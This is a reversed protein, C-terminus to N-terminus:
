RHALYRRSWIWTVGLLLSGLVLYLTAPTATQPWGFIAEYQMGHPLNTKLAHTHLAQGDPRVPTVDVAVLSTYRSVLHHKLALDLISQRLLAKDNDQTQQDMLRAITQRAWYVAIGNRPKADVLSQKTEWHTGAQKGSITISSPLNKTRFAVTLPEGTYLDPLPNPVVDDFISDGSQITIDTFAPHELKLFLRHMKDQVQTTAGIHTFTGKGFQAAKRMFHGNPASGIGVTFLRNQGIDRQLLIFLADENGVLGDTIFIIQRLSHHEEQNPTRALAQLLAPQMETGGEAKLDDVYRLAQRISLASAQQSTAYFAQTISNFQILNFSDQPTLRTLALKLAAKAQTLSSGAMSGSTDIVFVVERPITKQTPSPTVPPMLQMFLFTEGEHQETFVSAQPNEHSLPTWLLEFDRDAYTSSDQLSVQYSNTDQKTITIPHTPSEIKQLLMGPALDIQLAIPHLLGQSPHQVPPTIRSADPVQDSNPAWGLGSQSSPPEQIDQPQGPIYRPGVVMPFRLSFRGQDYRVMEQYEIEITIPAHPAINAVSTTFINPREQEVLSARQGKAKAKAYTQKAQAREQIQGEIIREGIKMRLHDVAAQDPLPFVYVGEAWEDSPNSFQQSVTTRAILGSITMTVTTKLLPAPIPTQGSVTKLLVGGEPKKVVSEQTSDPAPQAAASPLALGGFGSSLFCLVLLFVRPRRIHM